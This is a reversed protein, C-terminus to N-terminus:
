FPKDQRAKTTAKQQMFSMRKLLSYAWVMPPQIHGDMLITCDTEKVIGEAAVIVIRANISAGDRRLFRVYQQVKGDLEGLTLPRRQMKKPLCSIEQEDRKRKLEAEYQKM